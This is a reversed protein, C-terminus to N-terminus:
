NVNQHYRVGGKAPGRSTSFQVRFGEFVEVHGDDMIVPLSVKLEREPHCIPEIDDRSYGLIEGAHAVVKQVNEFPDYKAAM